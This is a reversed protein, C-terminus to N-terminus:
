APSRLRSEVCARLRERLRGLTTTVWTVSRGLRVATEAVPLDEGYRAALLARAEGAVEALCRRLAALRDQGWAQSEAAAAEALRLRLVERASGLNRRERRRRTLEGQALSRCIARLWVGLDREQDYDALREYARILTLHALEEAGDRDPLLFSAYAVLMDQHREVVAAYAERDGGLVRTILLDPM